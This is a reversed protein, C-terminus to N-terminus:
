KKGASKNKPPLHPKEKALGKKEHLAKEQTLLKKGATKDTPTTEHKRHYSTM